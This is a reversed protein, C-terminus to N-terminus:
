IVIGGVDGDDPMDRQMFILFPPSGLVV